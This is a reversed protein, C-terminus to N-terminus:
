AAGGAQQEQGQMRLPLGALQSQDAVLLLVRQRNEHLEAPVDRLNTEHASIATDKEGPTTAPPVSSATTTFTGLLHLSLSVLVFCTVDDNTSVSRSAFCERCILNLGRPLKMIVPQEGLHAQM